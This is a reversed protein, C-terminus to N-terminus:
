KAGEDTIAITVVDSSASVDPVYMPSIRASMARFTGPTTVKLMYTMEYRGASFDSLFYVVRDDRMQRQSGYWWSRRQELEYLNEREVPETGAPIPDEVMLYRWDSSGAAILRVLILDGARASDKFPTERYVIRGDVFRVALLLSYSRLLALRRSGTREAAAPKDYYRVSAEYYLAGGGQKVIRVDNVGAAAPTEIVAPDPAVLSKADFARTAVRSGNVFVDATFPSPQEGRANMFALLGELALATQKTSVWYGGATRNLVLWRAARELLPNRRDRSALAKLALATAEVSTDVFDDLLPDSEVAWWSLEGRTQAANVLERAATDARSDKRQGLTMVLLARGSATMRQRSSWLDDLAGGLNFPTRQGNPADAASASRALVYVEYAKLDPLARPYKAFLRELANRANNIRGREVRVGNDRAQLLGDLAYATMFPHNEDTKWWGWGGDDHQYDYLRKLGQDVRRDLARLREPPAIQMQSLARVVVLNPVFSSLTQETCGWPYSTLYDLAGLMTGALSPALSIRISRGSENATPPVMLAIRREGADVISGSSGLNRQLGAPLVPLSLQMADGAADTTAKGAVTITRVLDAKFRWDARQQGNAAVRLSRPALASGGEVGEVPTLGDASLSLSVTKDDPLYNHVITPITVQDGETLFRPTVVRLIVDKTTTTNTTTVGVDTGVTVARVTLRWSTLSDPYDVRVSATGDMKTTVDGAWYATDPFDKRVRPRDPRDAKFEALTIPGRRHTHALLLQETGSYGVFPYDRSFSTGVFSYERRYFFRLPSPTDDPRVGYIAEDVLGVSLQARVPAGSADAVRLTFLGLEGPRVIAKDAVATVTLQHRTAPVRLRREARYLRDDKLFAISVYTDGLDEDTIPVSISENARTKAVQHFSVHRVEKTVLVPAEFEAGRIILRATEGPQYSKRDAILELVQDTDDAERVTSRGPVWIYAADSVERGESPAFVRVRYSGPQQPVQMSALARGEADTGGTPRVQQIVNVKQERTTRQYEVRELAIRMGVGAQPNGMYDVARLGVTAMEGPSFVYRNTQVVVLFRGYTANVSAAGAVERDSADVVRAEIRSTYDRGHADVELPISIHATGQENLRTSGEIEQDGGFGFDRREEDGGSSEDYRQPSFYPQVHVVYKVSAGVVPQGFYYRATITANVSGGQLVFRSSPEVVVDFEPKRYEQVEFSGTAAAQGSAMRVVYYGVSGAPPVTFSGNVAGFEDVTKRERLLVKETGDIVTVEVPDRGGPLALGDRERWRIVGKFHVTHGPRYVPRDTYIYGVLERGPQRITYAGPDTAATQGACQALTVLNDSRDVTIKTEFTGDDATTGTTVTKQDAIVRVGCGGVPEGTFRNAAFVFLQGPATKTVLGVDSIVVVTYAKLPGNVAEIVYIGPSNLDLPVRRFDAERMPPLLERWSTVLQSANLVPVQAFSNVNVTRRRVVQRKDDRERQVQRYEASFQRRVFRRTDARRDAKWLAIRELWTREQPVIPKEGGLHHPDRLKEFFAFADNVKYVRFDLSEVGRYILTIAPRERTNFNRSSALTFSPSNDPTQAYLNLPALAVLLACYLSWQASSAHLM